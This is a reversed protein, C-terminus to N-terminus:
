YIALHPFIERRRERLYSRIDSANEMEMVDDAIRQCMQITVSRCVEKVVQISQPACSLERLGLGLLLPTYLPQSAMQGCLCVPKEARQAITITQRILRLVAPDEAQFLHSVLNNGRDVGLTYQILDNTGISVFDVENIFRDLMLVAAPVEIMMGIKIRADFPIGREQLDDQVDALIMKASRLESLMTVMPFMVRVSGYISARLIARLQVEFEAINRLSLRISRLGLAPNRESAEFIKSTMKDSGLDCTRITVPRGPMSEAVAKYAAFHTEESVLIEDDQPTLYLFETRFLGVGDAGRELCIDCEFPFEINGCLAIRTGDITVSEVTKLQALQVVRARIEDQRLRYRACTEEDPSVIVEGSHGDIIVMEGSPVLELFEGVGVVAPIELAAAVISTHGGPGGQETVFGKVIDRNINATESPTLDPALLIVPARLEDLREGRIGLLQKLIRREIDILDNARDALHSSSFARFIATRAAFITQVAYAASFFKERICSELEDSLKSDTLIQIHAEFIDAYTKGLQKGISDRYLSTERRAEEIAHRLRSLEEDVASPAIAKQAVRYAEGSKVFATCIAIGPSVPIGQFKRM